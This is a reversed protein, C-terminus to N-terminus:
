VLVLEHQSLYDASITAYGPNTTRAKDWVLWRWVAGGAERWARDLMPVTSHATFVYSPGSVAGLLVKSAARTLAEAEAAGDGTIEKDGKYGKYNVGYPPDTVAADARRVSLARVGERFDGCYLRHDGLSYVTGPKSRPKEGDGPSVTDSGVSSRRPDNVKARLDRMLRDFGAFDPRPLDAAISDLVKADLASAEYRGRIAPNNLALNAAMEDVSDLEVVVCEVHTAGDAQLQRLRQHGGILRKKGDRVNVVPLELLGYAHLSDALGRRAEDSMTRPNWPAAEIEAIPGRVVKHSKM